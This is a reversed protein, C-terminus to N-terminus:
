RATAATLDAEILGILETVHEQLFFHGGRFTTLTGDSTTQRRWGAVHDPPAGEDREGAFARIPVDLPPEPVYRYDDVWRLDARLVPLVLELLEPVQLVAAPFGGAAALLDLLEGDPLRSLGDLPGDAQEDPARSGSPYFRRPLPRGARRMARVVEFGLRGGLSHGFIAFPRDAAASIAEGIEAPVLAHPERIRNERGPLQVAIVEVQPGFAAPWTRYASAGAGAYPLCFLQVPADPRRSYRVFWREVDDASMAALSGTVGASNLRPGPPM